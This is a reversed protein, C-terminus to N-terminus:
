IGLVVRQMIKAASMAGAGGSLQTLVGAENITFMEVTGSVDNAYLGATNSGMTAPVTGDGFVLTQTGTGPFAIAGIGVNGATTCALTATGSSPNALPLIKFTDTDSNDVGVAWNTQGSVTLQLYPDGGNAGSTVVQCSANATASTTNSNQLTSIVESTASIATKMFWISGTVTGIAYYLIDNATNSRAAIGVTNVTQGVEFQYTPTIGVGVRGSSDIRLRETLVSPTANTGTWFSLRAPVRTDAITDSSIGKIAAGAIYGTAGGYGTFYLTGLEDGTTIVTPLAGTGRAKRFLYDFGDASADAQTCYLLGTAATDSSLHFLGAPATTGIGVSGGTSQFLVFHTSQATDLRLDIGNGASLRLADSSLSFQGYAVTNAANSWQFARQFTTTDAGKDMQYNILSTGSSGAQIQVRYQTDLLAPGGIAFVNGTDDWFLNTNDETLSEGDTGAFVISGETFSTTNTGGKSVNLPTGGVNSNIDISGNRVDDFLLQFMDDIDSVSQPTLPWSIRHPQSRPAM